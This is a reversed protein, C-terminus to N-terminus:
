ITGQNLFEEKQQLNEDLDYVRPSHIEVVTVSNVVDANTTEINHQKNNYNGNGISKDIVHNYVSLLGDSADNHLNTNLPVIKNIPKFPNGNRIFSQKKEEDNEIEDNKKRFKKWKKAMTKREEDLQKATESTVRVKLQDWNAEIYKLLWNYANEINEDRRAKYGNYLACCSEIKTPCKFQNVLNELDLDICLQVEDVAESLDQKNVLVLLPKGAVKENGLVQELNEKVEKVRQCDTSDIVYILGHVLAFYNKWIPRIKKSGGLDYIQVDFRSYSKMGVSSFGVTPVIDSLSEGVLNKVTTTKGANDLGIILLKIAEKDRFTFVFFSFE